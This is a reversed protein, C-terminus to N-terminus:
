RREADVIGAGPIPIGRWLQMDYLHEVGKPMLSEQVSGAWIWALTVWHEVGKPMLSEQVTVHDVVLVAFCVTHEVGKPM